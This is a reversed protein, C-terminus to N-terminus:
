RENCSTLNELMEKFNYLLIRGYYLYSFALYTSCMHPSLHTCPCTHTHPYADPCTQPCSHCLHPLFALVLTFVLAPCTSCCIYPCIGPYTHTYMCIRNITKLVLFHLFKHLFTLCPSPPDFLKKFWIINNYVGPLNANVIHIVHLGAYCIEINQVIQFITMYNMLIYENCINIIYFLM